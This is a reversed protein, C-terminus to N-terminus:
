YGPWRTRTDIGGNLRPDGSHDCNDNTNGDAPVWGDLGADPPLGDACITPASNVIAPAPTVGGGQDGGGNDNGGNDDGGNDAGGGGNDVPQCSGLYDGHQLHAFVASISVSLTQQHAGPNHCITVKPNFNFASTTVAGASAVSVLAAAAVALMLAIRKM